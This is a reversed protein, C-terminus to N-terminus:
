GPHHPKAGLDQGVEFARQDIDLAVEVLLAEAPARGRRAVPNRWVEVQAPNKESLTRYVSLRPRLGRRPASMQSRALLKEIKMVVVHDPDRDGNRSHADRVRGEVAGLGDGQHALRGFPMGRYYEERFESQGAIGALVQMLLADHEVAAERRQAPNDLRAAREGRDRDNAERDYDIMLKEVAGGDDM